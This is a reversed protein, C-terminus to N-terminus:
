TSLGDFTCFGLPRDLLQVDWLAVGPSEGIESMGAITAHTTLGRGGSYDEHEHTWIWVEEGVAVSPAPDNSGIRRPGCDPTLVTGGEWDSTTQARVIGNPCHEEGHVKFFFRNM